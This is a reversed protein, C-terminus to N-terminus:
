GSKYTLFEGDWEWQSNLNPYGIVKTKVGLFVRAEMYDWM